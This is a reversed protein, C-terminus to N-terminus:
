GVGRWFGRGSRIESAHFEVPQLGPFHRAQITEIAQSLFYIQREFLAVGALVFFQDNADNENGSEDLYLVYMHCGEFRFRGVGIPYATDRLCSAQALRM